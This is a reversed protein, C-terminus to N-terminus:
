CGSKYVYKAGDGDINDKTILFTDTSIVPETPKGQLAAIAQQAGKQGITFPEQAVVGDVENKKVLDAVAPTPDFGILTVSDHKGAQKIGTAVGETLSNNVAFIGVIDPDKQLAATTIQAAKTVSLEPDYQVDLLDFVGSKEVGEKFGNVRDDNSTIGPATSLVLVKGGAPHAQQVGQFATRGAAVNDTAIRSVSFSPDTVSTDLLVVKVGGAAVDALPKQLATADTPVVLLANPKTALISDLVSKQQAADWDKSAQYNLSAGSQASIAEKAGCELGVSYEDSPVANVFAINLTDGQNGAGGDATPKSGACGSVLLTLMLPFATLIAARIM